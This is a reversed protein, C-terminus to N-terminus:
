QLAKDWRTLIDEPTKPVYGLRLHSQLFYLLIPIFSIFNFIILELATKCNFIVLKNFACFHFTKIQM